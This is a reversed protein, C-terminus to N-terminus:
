LQRKLLLKRGEAVRVTFRISDLYELLPISYKRSVGFMDKFDRPTLIDKRNFYDHLMNILCDIHKHHIYIDAKIHIIRGLRRLYNHADIFKKRDMKLADAVEATTQLLFGYDVFAKEVREVFHDERENGGPNSREAEALNSHVM